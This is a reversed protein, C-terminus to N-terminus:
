KDELEFCYGIERVCRITFPTDPSAAYLKEEMERINFHLFVPPGRIDTNSEIFTDKRLIDKYSTSCFFVATRQFAATDMFYVYQTKKLPSYGTDTRLIGM